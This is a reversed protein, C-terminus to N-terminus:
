ILGETSSLVVVKSAADVSEIWPEAIAQELLRGDEARIVLSDVSPHVRVEVVEGIRGEPGRVEAGVLDSLYYEGEAPEELASRPVSVTSGRLAEAADRDGVGELRLLVAKDARRASLIKREGLAVGNRELIVSEVHELTESAAFHLHM